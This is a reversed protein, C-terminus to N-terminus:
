GSPRCWHQRVTKESAIYSKKLYTLCHTLSRGNVEMSFSVHKICRRLKSVTTGKGNWVHLNDRIWMVLKKRDDESWVRYKSNSERSGVARSTPIRNNIPSRRPLPRSTRRPTIPMKFSPWFLTSRFTDFVRKKKVCNITHLGHAVCKKTSNHRFNRRIQLGFRLERALLSAVFKM